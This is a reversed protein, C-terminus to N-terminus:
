KGFVITCVVISAMLGALDALLSGWLTYRIKKIGVTGFYLSLTYFITETSGMMTSAVRGIFSDPSHTKFLEGLMGVAAIGSVPKMLTIPLMDGPLGLLDTIPAILRVIIDMAGSARFIGIAVFMAIMYPFIRVVTSLGEKAGEVFTEYVNIKKIHGYGLVFFMFAPIAMVSLVGVIEIM